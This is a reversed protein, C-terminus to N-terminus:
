KTEAIGQRALLTALAVSGLHNGESCRHGTFAVPHFCGTQFPSGEGTVACLPAQGCEKTRHGLRKDGRVPQM